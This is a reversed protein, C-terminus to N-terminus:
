QTGGLCLLRGDQTTLYLRGTTAAMGDYTPAADLVYESLKHGNGAAVSWLLGGQRGDFAAWPDEADVQDPVGAVFLVDDALVMSQSRIPVRMTWRDRPGSKSARRKAATTENSAPPKPQQHDNAFLLYGDKGPTFHANVDGPRPYSRIGYSATEDFVLYQGLPRKNVAWFIRNFWTDDLLGGTALLRL